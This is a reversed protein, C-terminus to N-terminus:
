DPQSDRIRNYEKRMFKREEKSFRKRYRKGQDIFAPISSIGYWYLVERMWELLDNQRDTSLKSKKKSSLYSKLSM